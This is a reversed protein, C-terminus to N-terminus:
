ARSGARGALAARLTGLLTEDGVPKALYTFAGGAMARARTREDTSGTVFIVPLGPALAQLRELLEIGDMAPMRVDTIVLDVADPDVADPAFGALVDAARAFARPAFGAVQLLDFLAERM